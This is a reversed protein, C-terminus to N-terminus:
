YDAVMLNEGETRAVMVSCCSNSYTNVATRCMDLLREVAMLLGVGDSPLGLAALIIVVSILSASPVGAVGISLVWAMFFVLFQTPINLPIGYMQAIFFVSVIVQLSSGALNMSSGLPLTFSAIRNSVGLRKEVCEMTVPLTAASSSTTFATLLAPAMAKIQNVPNVKGVWILLLSLALLMYLVLGLLVTLFFYWVSTFGEIGTSAVVKAILGFVGFPMAKMVFETIKMMVQFVGQWFSLLTLSQDKGIKLIFYGFLLSFFILGLMQGEAAVSIINPPVLRLLVQEFKSFANGNVALKALDLGTGGLLNGADELVGPNILVSLIWGILIAIGTTGLFFGFTKGGLKGFSQDSGMKATGSIISSVVLPVVVLMLANLFLQGMLSYIQYFSVGLFGAEKGTALGAIVAVVMAFLVQM